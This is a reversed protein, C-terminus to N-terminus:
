PITWRYIPRERGGSTVRETQQPAWDGMDHWHSVIRSGPKLERLLKPRVKLNLQGSLFLMVVTAGSIDTALLDQNLFEIRDSVGALRANERSEAIRRPDIDVCVGRANAQRVAAIVIRGDGCGLDYVVDGPKVDALRLMAQVVDMESPEYRVDPTRLVAPVGGSEQAYGPGAMCGAALIACLLARHAVLAGRYACLSSQRCGSLGLHKM